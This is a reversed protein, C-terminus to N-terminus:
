PQNALFAIFKEPAEDCRWGNTAVLMFDILQLERTFVFFFTKEAWEGERWSSKRTKSTM